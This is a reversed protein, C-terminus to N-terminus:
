WGQLKQLKEQEEPTLKIGEAEKQATAEAQRIKKRLNRLQKEIDQSVTPAAAAGSNQLVDTASTVANSAAAHASANDADPSGNAKSSAVRTKASQQKDGVLGPPRDSTDAADSVSCVLNLM